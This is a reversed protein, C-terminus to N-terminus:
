LSILRVEISLIPGDAINVKGNEFASFDVLLLYLTRLAVLPSIAPGCFLGGGALNVLKTASTVDSTRGVNFSHIRPDFLEPWSYISAAIVRAGACVAGGFFFVAMELRHFTGGM